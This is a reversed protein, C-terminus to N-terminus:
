YTENNMWDILAELISGRSECMACPCEEIHDSVHYAGIWLSYRM